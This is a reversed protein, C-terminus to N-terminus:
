DEGLLALVILVAMGLVIITSLVPVLVVLRVAGEDAPGAVRHAQWLGAM